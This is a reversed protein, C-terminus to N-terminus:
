SAAAALIRALEEYALVPVSHGDSWVAGLYGMMHRGVPQAGVAQFAGVIPPLVESADVQPRLDVFADAPCEHSFVCSEDPLQPLLSMVDRASSELDVDMWICSFPGGFSPLTESFYGQHLHVVSPQGFTRLNDTVEDITGRFDHEQYYGGESPPLGEFSDFVHLPIGLWSCAHSLCCTSFGKFCGCEVLGGHIGRSRLVYLHNAICLMEQPSSAIAEFDKASPDVLPNIRGFHTGIFTFTESMSRLFHAYRLVPKAAARDRLIRAVDELAREVTGGDWTATADYEDPRLEALTMVVDAPLPARATGARVPEGGPVRASLVERAVGLVSGDGARFQVSLTQPRGVPFTGPPFAVTFGSDVSGPMQPLAAAVDTRPVDARMQGVAQDDLLVRVSDVGAPHAVWGIIGDATCTEINFAFQSDSGAPVGVATSPGARRASLRERLGAM